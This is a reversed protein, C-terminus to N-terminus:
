SYEDKIGSERNKNATTNHGPWNLIGGGSSQVPQQHDETMVIPQGNHDINQPEGYQEGTEEHHKEKKKGGSSCFLIM